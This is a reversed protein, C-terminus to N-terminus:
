HPIPPFRVDKNPGVPYAFMLSMPDRPDWTWMEPRGYMEFADHIAIVWQLMDEMHGHDPGGFEPMVLLWGEWDRMAASMEGEGFTGEMKILTSPSILEPREPYVAFAQTVDRMSLLARKRDNPRQSAYMSVLPRSQLVPAGSDRTFLSPFRKKRPLSATPAPTPVPVVGVGAETPGLRDAHTASEAGASIVMWMRKWDTQGAIRVRVWGELRGRVLTSPMDPQKHTIRLLHATYIEELRSKEWSSLRLASVWSKLTFSDPCSFLLYNSGATLISFVHAYTQAPSSPGEPVRVAGILQVFADTTNVYTPPVQKGQKSAQKVKAMDWISLTTGALQAWVEFWVEDLRQQGNARRVLPGSYYIKHAHATTLQVVSRIEPHLPTPQSQPHPHPQAQAQALPQSQPKQQISPTSATSPTPQHQHPSSSAPAM